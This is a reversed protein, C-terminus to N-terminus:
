RVHRRAPLRYVLGQPFRRFRDHLGRYLQGAGGRGIPPLIAIGSTLAVLLACLPAAILINMGRITLFILLILGGVLGAMSLM